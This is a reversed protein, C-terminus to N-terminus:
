FEIRVTYKLRSEGDKKVPIFYHITSSDFKKYEHSSSIMKWSGPIKEVVKVVIDHKKHNKLIIEYSSEYINNAIKTWDMQKREGVIDFANGVVLSIKENKPTHDIMSEGIFQLSKDSDYKYSRIMGKPLPMGLNNEKKNLFEIVVEVKTNKLPYDLRSRYYFPNTEKYVYEKTLPINQAELMLIQKSQNNKLTTKRDLSYLHYEFFEEEKMERSAQAYMKMEDAARKKMKFTDVRRVDGAVLKLTANNYTTGSQNDITVWGTLDALTDNENLRLVYNAEWNLKNSLYATEITKTGQKDNKILWLLTPKSILDKPLEPFIVRGPHNFTIEDGIQYVPLGQNNSLLKAKVIEEKDTYYNKWYLKVEKGVYKDLLKSPSILDYEYNQELIDVCEKENLCKISVSEPIINASVDMFRLEQLGSDLKVKRQDKVLGLNNNYVTVEVNTQDSSTSIVTEASSINSLAFCLLFMSILIKM